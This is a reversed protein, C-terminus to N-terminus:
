KELLFWTIDDLPYLPDKHYIFGYDKIKLEPYLTMIDHCFDRKFLKNSHGRYNIERLDRSYYEAILIYKDSMNYMKEYVENLKEPNIHILVGKTFVLNYKNPENHNFITDNYLNDCINESKLIDYAHKNIELGNLSIDQNILKIAKFNLGRNCGIEFITKISINKLIKEFLNVNNKIIIENNRDTYENGFEGEWFKEQETM